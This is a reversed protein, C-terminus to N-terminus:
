ATRRLAAPPLPRCPRCSQTVTREDDPLGRELMVAFVRESDSPRDSLLSLLTCFSNMSLTQDDLKQEEFLRMAGEANSDKVCQTLQTAFTSPNGRM